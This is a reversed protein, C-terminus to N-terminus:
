SSTKKIKPEFLCSKTDAPGIFKAGREDRHVLISHGRPQGREPSFGSFCPDCVRPADAVQCGPQHKLLCEVARAGALKANDTPRLVVFTKKYDPELLGNNLAGDAPLEDDALGSPIRPRGYFGVSVSLRQGPRNCQREAILRM